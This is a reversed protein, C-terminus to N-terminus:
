PSGLVGFQKGNINSQNESPAGITKLHNGRQNGKTKGINGGKTKRKINKLNRSSKRFSKRPIGHVADIDKPKGMTGMQNETIKGYNKLHNGKQDGKTKGISGGSPKGNPIELSGKFSNRDYGYPKRNIKGHNKM